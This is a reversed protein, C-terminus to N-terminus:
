HCCSPLSEEEAGNNELSEKPHAPNPAANASPILPITDHLRIVMVAAAILALTKRLRPVWQGGLKLQLKAMGVQTAWLLPITGIGFALAFEAGQIASGTALCAAFLLYLPACPLAPTALGMLLAGRTASAKLAKFRLRAMWRKFFAPRPIKKELGFAIAVFVAVLVWPLIVAPSNFFSILFQDGITGFLAGIAAYSILRGGHYAVSTLTRSTDDKKVATLSCAIPGCMGACHISTILGALLALAPTNITEM